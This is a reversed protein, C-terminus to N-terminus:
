QGRKRPQKHSDGVGWPSDLEQNAEYTMSNSCVDQVTRSQTQCKSASQVQSICAQEGTIIKAKDEEQQSLLAKM